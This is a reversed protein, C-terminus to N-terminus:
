YYFISYLCKGCAGGCQFTVRNDLYGMIDKQWPALVQDPSLLHTRMAKERAKYSAFASLRRGGDTVDDRPPAVAPAEDHSGRKRKARAVNERSDNGNLNSATSLIQALELTFDVTDFMGESM